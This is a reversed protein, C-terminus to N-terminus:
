HLEVSNPFDNVTGTSIFISIGIDENKLTSLLEELRFLSAEKESVQKIHKLEPFLNKKTINGKSWYEIMDGYKIPMNVSSNHLWASIQTPNVKLKDALNVQSGALKIAKLLAAKSHEM